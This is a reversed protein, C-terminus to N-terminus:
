FELLIAFLLCVCERVVLSFSVSMVGSSIQCIFVSVRFYHSLLNGSM